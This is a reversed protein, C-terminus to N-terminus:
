TIPKSPDFAVVIVEGIIDGLATLAKKTYHNVPIRRMQIWLPIHQLYDEPPNEVWRELVIVWENFTHVGKELIDMLDNENQFFFQFREQSLAVGRM